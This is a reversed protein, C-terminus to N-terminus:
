RGPSNPEGVNLFQKARACDWSYSESVEATPYRYGSHKQNFRELRDIESLYLPTVNPRRKLLRLLKRSDEPSVSLSTRFCRDTRTGCTRDVEALPIPSRVFWVSDAAVAYDDPALCVYWKLLYAGSLARGGKNTIFFVHRCGRTVISKRMRQNCLSFLGYTMTELNPDAKNDRITTIARVPIGSLEDNFYYSLYGGSGDSTELLSWPSRPPRCPSNSAQRAM